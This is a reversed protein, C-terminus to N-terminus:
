YCVIFKKGLKGSIFEKFEPVTHVDMAKTPLVYAAKRNMMFYFAAHGEYVRHLKEYQMELNLKFGPNEGHISMHDEEFQFVFTSSYLDRSKKLRSLQILKEVLCWGLLLVVVAGIGALAPLLFGNLVSFTILITILIFIAIGIFPVAKNRRAKVALFRFFEKHDEKTVSTSVQFPLQLAVVGSHANLKEYVTEYTTKM